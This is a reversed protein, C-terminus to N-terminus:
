ASWFFTQNVTTKVQCFWTKTMFDSNIIILVVLLSWLDPNTIIIIISYIKILCPTFNAAKFPSIAEKSDYAIDSISHISIILFICPYTTAYLKRYMCRPPKTNGCQYRVSWLGFDYALFDLWIRIDSVTSIHNNYLHYECQVRGVWVTTSRKPGDSWM